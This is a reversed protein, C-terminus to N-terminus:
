RQPGRKEERQTRQPESQKQELYEEISEAAELSIAELHTDKSLIRAWGEISDLPTRLEGVLIELLEHPELSLPFDPLTPLDSDPMM